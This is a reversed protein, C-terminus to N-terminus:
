YDDEYEGHDYGGEEVDEGPHYNYGDEEAHTGYEEEDDGYEEAGEGDDALRGGYEKVDEVYEGESQSGYEEVDEVYEGESQGGYEEEAEESYEAQGIGRLNSSDLIKLNIKTLLRRENLETARTLLDEERVHCNVSHLRTRITIGAASASKLGSRRGTFIPKTFSSRSMKHSRAIAPRARLVPSIWIEEKYAASESGSESRRKCGLAVVEVECPSASGTLGM